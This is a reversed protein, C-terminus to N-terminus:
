FLPEEGSELGIDWRIEEISGVAGDAGIRASGVRLWDGDESAPGPVTLKAARPADSAFLTFWLSGTPAGGPRKHVTYRIWAALPESPHCLKLYFSEYHGAKRPVSPFRAATPDVPAVRAAAYGARMASSGTRTIVPALVPMPAAVAWRATSNPWRTTSPARESSLSRASACSSPPTSFAIATRQSTVSQSSWCASTAAARSRKPRM